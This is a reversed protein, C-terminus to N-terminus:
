EYMIVTEKIKRPVSLLIIGLVFVVAGAIIYNNIPEKFFLWAWLLTFLVSINSVLAAVLLPVKKLVKAYLYFSIGTIFGLAILSFLAVMSFKGSYKFTFPVPVVTVVTSLLFVSFNMNASDMKEILKKQSIVHTGAGIAAISFFVVTILNTHLFKSLPEGKWSVIVVGVICLVMAIVKRFYIEEKFHLVSVVALFVAQVPWVIVNGYAFGMAIAMNEFVYNCCKGIVGYWIWKYRWNFAIRKDKVLLLIGLFIVGFLFRCLTITSSNVMTSASKVLVGVFSWMLATILLLVYAM